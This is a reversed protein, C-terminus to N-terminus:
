GWLLLSESLCSKGEGRRLCLTSHTVFGTDPGLAQAAAEGVQCM